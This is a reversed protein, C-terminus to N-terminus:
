KQLTSWSVEGPQRFHAQGRARQPTRQNRLTQLNHLRRTKLYRVLKQVPCYNTGTTSIYIINGEHFQHNRTEDIHKVQLNLIKIMRLFGAFSVLCFTIFRMTPLEPADAFIDVVKIIKQPSHNKRKKKPPTSHSGRGRPIPKLM